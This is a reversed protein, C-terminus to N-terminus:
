ASTPMKEPASPGKGWIKEGNKRVPTDALLKNTLPRYAASKPEDLTRM